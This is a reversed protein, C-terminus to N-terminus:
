SPRPKDLSVMRETLVELDLAEKRVRLDYYVITLAIFTVAGFMAWGIATGINSFVQGVVFGASSGPDTVLIVGGIAAFLYQPIAQLIGVLISMLVVTGFVRWWYGQVLQKSRRLADVPGLGEIVVSQIYLSWLGFFYIALGLPTCLIIAWKLWPRRAAPNVFWVILGIPVVLWGVVMTVLLPISVLYLGIIALLVLLAAGLLSWFRRGAEAYGRRISTQEGRWLDRTISASAAGGLIILVLYCLGFVVGALIGGVILVSPEMFETRTVIGAAFAAFFLIVLIVLPIMPVAMAGVFTRFGARYVRITEDMVDGLGMPGLRRTPTVM